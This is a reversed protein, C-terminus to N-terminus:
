NSSRTLPHFSGLQLALDHLWGALKLFTSKWSGIAKELGVCTAPATPIVALRKTGAVINAAFIQDFGRAFARFFHRHETNKKEGGGPRYDQHNDFYDAEVAAM